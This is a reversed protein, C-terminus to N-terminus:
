KKKHLWRLPYGHKGLLHGVEHKAAFQLLHIPLKENLTTLFCIGPVLYTIGLLPNFAHFIRSILLSSPSLWYNTVGMLAVEKERSIIKNMKTTLRSTDLFMGWNASKYDIQENLLEVQINFENTIQTQVIELLNEKVIDLTLLYIKELNPNFALKFGTVVRFLRLLLWESLNYFDISIKEM